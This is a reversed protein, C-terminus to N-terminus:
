PRSGRQTTVTQEPTVTHPTNHTARATATARATTSATATMIAIAIAAAAMEAAARRLPARADDSASSPHSLNHPSLRVCERARMRRGRGCFGHADTGHTSTPWPGHEAPELVGQDVKIM